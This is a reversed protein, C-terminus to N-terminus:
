GDARQRRAQLVVGISLLVTTIVFIVTAAAAVTPDIDRTVSTYMEVPLTRRQPTVLFISIVVEDFSAMFAFLAGTLMSPAILPLTIKRFTSVPSAGLSAAASALQPNLAELGASVTVFVFPIGLACHAAVFGPITGTLGWPLFVAYVGVAVIVVPVIMPALLLASLTRRGFSRGQMGLAAATGLVTAAVASLTAVIVSTILAQSWTPDEFLNVYWQTSWGKPPFQFSTAATFSLPIVVLTPIVLWAAVLAVFAVLVVRAPRVRRGRAGAASYAASV